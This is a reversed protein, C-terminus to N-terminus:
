WTLGESGLAKVTGAVIMMAAVRNAASGATTRAMRMSEAASSRASYIRDVSKKSTRRTLLWNVFKKCNPQVRTCVGSSHSFSSTSLALVNTNNQSLSSPKAANHCITRSLYHRAAM